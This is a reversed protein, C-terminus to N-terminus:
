LACKVETPSEYGEDWKIRIAGKIWVVVRVQFRYLDGSKSYKERTSLAPMKKAFECCLIAALQKWTKCLEFGM